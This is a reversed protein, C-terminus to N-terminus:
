ITSVIKPYSSSKYSRGAETQLKNKINELKLM